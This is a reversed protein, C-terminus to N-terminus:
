KLSDRKIQSFVGLRIFLSFLRTYRLAAKVVYIVVSLYLSQITHTVPMITVLLYRPTAWNIPRWMQFTSAVRELRAVQIICLIM